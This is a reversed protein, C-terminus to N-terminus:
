ERDKAIDKAAQINNLEERLLGTLEDVTIWTLDKQDRTLWDIRVHGDDMWLGVIKLAPYELFLEVKLPEPIEEALSLIVFVWEAKTELIASPLEQVDALERTIEFGANIEIVRKVLERLLRSGNVLIARQSQM